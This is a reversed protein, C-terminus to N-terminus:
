KTHEIDTKEYALHECGNTIFSFITIERLIGIKWNVPKLIIKINSQIYTYISSHLTFELDTFIRM